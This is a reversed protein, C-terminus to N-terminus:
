EEKTENEGEAKKSTRRSTSKKTVPKDDAEVEATVPAVQMQAMLAAMQRQMEALAAQADEAQKKLAEVDESTATQAFEKPKVSITTHFKKENFEKRRADLLKEVNGSIGVGANKLGIFVGYVRDFYMPETIKLIRDLGDATPNMLIDEIAAETLIDQWDQIRLEEYLDKAFEDEFFLLGIKFTKTSSNVYLIEDFTLPYSTPSYTSGGAVIFNSHRTTVGVPSPNYNLVLYTRTKDLM